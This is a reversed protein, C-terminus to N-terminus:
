RTVGTSGFTSSTSGHMALARPFGGCVFETGDAYAMVNNGFVEDYFSQPTVRQSTALTGFQTVSAGAAHVQRDIRLAPAALTDFGRFHLQNQESREVWADGFAGEEGTMAITHALLPAPPRPTSLPNPYVTQMEHTVSFVSSAFSTFGSPTVPPQANWVVMRTDFEDASPETTFSRWGRPRAFQDSNFVTVAGFASAFVDAPHLYRIQNEVKTTGFAGTVSTPKIYSPDTTVVPAGFQLSNHGVEGIGGLTVAVTGFTTAYVPFVHIEGKTLTPYADGWTSFGTFSITQTGNSVRPTGIALQSSGTPRVVTTGNAVAFSGFVRSDFATPKPNRIYNEVVETGFSLASFGTPKIAGDRNAVTTTGFARADFGACALRNEIWVTPTGFGSADLTNPLVYPSGKPFVFNVTGSLSAAPDYILFDVTGSPHTYAM